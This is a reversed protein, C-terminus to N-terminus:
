WRVSSEPGSRPRQDSVVELPVGQALMVSAASHRAEHCHWHGRGASRALRVFDKAFNDPDIPTGISTTFILGRDAWADGAAEREQAQHAAHADLSEIIGLTLHLVRRSRRTKLESIEVRSTTGGPYAGDDEPASKRRRVAQRAALTRADGDLDAWALGLM